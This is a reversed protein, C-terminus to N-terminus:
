KVKVKAKIYFNMTALIYIEETIAEDFSAVAKIYFDQKNAIQALSANTMQLELYNTNLPISDLYGALTEPMGDAVAYVRISKLFNFDRGEPTAINLALKELRLEKVESPQINNVSLELISTSLPFSEEYPVDTSTGEPVPFPISKNVNLTINKKCSSTLGVFVFLAIYILYIRHKTRM